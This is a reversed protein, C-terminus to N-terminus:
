KIKMADCFGYKRRYIIKDPLKGKALEILIKKRNLDDVKEFIPIQSFLLILREDIYPLFVEVNGSTKNLPELQEKRLRRIYNYYMKESPDHLHDYYGCNFEDVGDGAIIRKIERKDLDDYFTRVIDEGSKLDFNPVYIEHKVKFHCAVLNSFIYDPHDKSNAITFCKINTGFIKTMFYLLLSSDLGGSLSLCNCNIESLITLVMDEIQKVEIKKGVEKWKKPYSIM